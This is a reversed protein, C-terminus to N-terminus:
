IEFIDFYYDANYKTLIDMSMYNDKAAPERKMILHAIIANISRYVQTETRQTILYKVQGNRVADINKALMDYGVLAIGNLSRKEIYEAILHVRSNFTIIRKVEPHRDFFADLVRINHLPDYPKIFENLVTTSPHHAGIFEMFGARRSLTPNDQPLAEGRDIRFNAIAEGQTASEMLLSGGLIGSQFMPMGYYAMYSTTDLKSDIYVFPVGRRSLETTLAITLDHYIPALMVAAPDAALTEDCAKRFSAADFQEYQVTIIDINYAAAKDIARQIGGRVLEWYEGQGFRPILCVLTYRKKSALLSAYLNPKYGLKEIVENIKIRSTESVEGRNHVVRDVTGKSLGSLRAVDKITIKKDDSNMIGVKRKGHLRVSAAGTIEFLSIFNKTCTCSIRFIISVKTFYYSAYIKYYM